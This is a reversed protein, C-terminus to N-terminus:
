GAIVKWAIAVLVALALAAVGTQRLNHNQLGIIGSNIEDLQKHVHALDSSIEAMRARDNRLEAEVAIRLDEAACESEIRSRAAEAAGRVEVAAHEAEAHLEVLARDAEALLREAAAAVVSEDAQRQVHRRSAADQHHRAMGEADVRLARRM